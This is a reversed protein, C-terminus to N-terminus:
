AELHKRPMLGWIIGGKVGVLISLFYFAGCCLIVAPGTPVDAQYSLLLGTFSAVFAAGVAVGIMWAVDEVWFRAAV